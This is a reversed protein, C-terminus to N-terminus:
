PSPCLDTQHLLSRHDHSKYIRGRPSPVLSRDKFDQELDRDNTFLLRAGSLRALAIVHYDNSRFSATSRIVETEEDVLDDRIRRARGSLVAQSLWARFRSYESLEHLLKGGVVLRGNRGRTLWEYLIRGREPRHDGFVEPIVNADVIACM